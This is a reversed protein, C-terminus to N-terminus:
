KADPTAGSGTGDKKVDMVSKEFFKEYFFFPPALIIPSVTRRDARQCTINSTPRPWIPFAM